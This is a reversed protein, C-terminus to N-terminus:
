SKLQGLAAFGVAAGIGVGLIAGNLAFASVNEGILGLVAGALTGLASGATTHFLATLAASSRAGIAGFRPLRAPSTSMELTFVGTIEDGM